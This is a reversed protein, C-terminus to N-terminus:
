VDRYISYEDPQDDDSQRERTMWVVVDFQIFREWLKTYVAEKDPNRKEADPNGYCEAMAGEILQEQWMLPFDLSTAPTKNLDSLAFQAMPLRAVRMKVTGIAANPKPYISIYGSRKDPIWINPTSSAEADEWGAVNDDMYVVSRKRLPVTSWSPKVRKISVIREDLAYDQTNTVMTVTCILATSDDLYYETRRAFDNRKKNLASLLEATSWGYPEIEDDLRNRLLKVADDLNM